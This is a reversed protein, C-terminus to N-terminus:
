QYIQSNIFLKTVFLYIITHVTITSLVDPSFHYVMQSQFRQNHTDKISNHYREWM